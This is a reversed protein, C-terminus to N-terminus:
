NGATLAAFKQLTAINKSVDTSVIHKTGNDTAINYLTSIKERSDKLEESLKLKEDSNDELKDLQAELKKNYENRAELISGALLVNTLVRVSEGKNFVAIIKVREINHVVTGVDGTAPDTIEMGNRIPSSVNEKDKPHGQYGKSYLYFLGEDPVVIDPKTLEKIECVYDILLRLADTYSLDHDLTYVPSNYAQKKYNFAAYMVFKGDQKSIKINVYGTKSTTSLIKISDRFKIAKQLALQETVSSSNDYKFVQFIRYRDMTISVEFWQRRYNRTINLPKNNTNIVFGKVVKKRAM